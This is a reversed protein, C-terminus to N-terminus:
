LSKIVFTSLDVEGELPKSEPTKSDYFMCYACIKNQCLSQGDVGEHEERQLEFYTTLSQSEGWMTTYGSSYKGPKGVQEAPSM